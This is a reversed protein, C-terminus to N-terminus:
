ILSFLFKEADEFTVKTKVSRQTKEEKEEFFIQTVDNKLAYEKFILGYESTRLDGVFYILNVTKTSLFLSVFQGIEYADDTQAKEELKKAFELKDADGLVLFVLKIMTENPFRFPKMEFSPLLSPLLPFNLEVGGNVSDYTRNIVNPISDVITDSVKRM